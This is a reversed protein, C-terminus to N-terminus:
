RESRANLYDHIKYLRQIGPTAQEVWQDLLGNSNASEMLDSEMSTDFHGNNSDQDAYAQILTGLQNHDWELVDGWTKVDNSYFSSFGSHSTFREKVLEALADANVESHIRTIEAEPILAYIKDTTFNYEKPSHLSECAMGSIKFEEAFAEVYAQAYSTYVKSFDCINFHADELGSNPHCGTAKDSFMQQICDDIKSDHLSEYFGSFPVTSLKMNM